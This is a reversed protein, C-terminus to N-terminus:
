DEDENSPNLVSNVFFAGSLVFDADHPIDELFTVATYGLASAGRLVAVRRFRYGGVNHLHDSRKETHRVAEEAEAAFANTVASDAPRHNGEHTHAPNDSLRIFVYDKGEYNVIAESPLAPSLVDGLSILGTIDMGDIFSRTDGLLECHVAVTRTNPEFVGGIMHIRADYEQTPNNTLRFHVRQGVKLKPLDQEYIHLDLHLAANNIIECVPTTPDIYAGIQAKIEGVVGSIPSVVSISPQLSGSSLKSPNIGMLRLQQELSAKRSRLVGLESRASQLLKGTGADSNKLLEQRKLEESAFALRSLTSLYEEQTQIFQPSSIVAVTQGKAVRAGEHVLIRQVVGGYLSSVFGKDNNPVRLAGNARITASLEKYELKGIRIGAADLNEQTLVAIGENESHEEDSHEEKQKNSKCSSLGLTGAGCLMLACLGILSKIRINM